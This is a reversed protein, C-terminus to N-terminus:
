KSISQQSIFFTCFLDDTLLNAVDIILKDLTLSEEYAKVEVGEITALITLLDAKHGKLLAPVSEKVRKRMFQGVTMGEPLAKRSFLAAAAEDEAINSVPVILEAVVDLAREGKIDTLKM